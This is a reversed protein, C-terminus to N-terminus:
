YYVNNATSFSLYTKNTYLYLNNFLNHVNSSFVTRAILFPLRTYRATALLRSLIQALPLLTLQFPSSDSKLQQRYYPCHKSTFSVKMEPVSLIKLHTM